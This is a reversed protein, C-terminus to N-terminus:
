MRIIHNFIQTFTVVREQAAFASLAVRLNYLCLIHIATNTHQAMLVCALVRVYARVCVCVCVCYTM